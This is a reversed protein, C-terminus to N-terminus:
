RSLGGRFAGTKRRAGAKARIRIDRMMRQQNTLSEGRAITRRMEKRGPFNRPKM